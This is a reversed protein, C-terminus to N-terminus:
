FQSTQLAPTYSGKTHTNIAYTFIDPDAKPSNCWGRQPCSLSFGKEPTLFWCNFDDFLGGPYGTRLAARNIVM